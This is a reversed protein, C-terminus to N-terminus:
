FRIGGSLTLRDAAPNNDRDIEYSGSFYLRRSLWTDASITLWHSDSHDRWAKLRNRSMGYETNIDLIDFFSRSFSISGQRGEGYPSSFLATSIRAAIRTWHSDRYSIGGSASRGTAGEGEGIGGSLYARLDSTLRADWGLRWGSRAAGVWLSDPIAKDAADRVNRWRSFGGSLNMRDSIAYNASLLFGSVDFTSGAANKRWGRNIQIEASQNVTFRRTSSFDNSLYMYERDIEGRNYVGVLALSSVIRYENSTPSNWRILSGAKLKNTSVGSTVPDPEVGAFFSWRWNDRLGYSFTSGDLYGAGSAGSPQVRGLSWQYRSNVRDNALSFEYLRSNWQNKAGQSTRNLRRARLRINLQLSSRAINYVRGNLALSPQNWEAGGAERAIQAYYDFGLRGSWGMGREPRVRRIREVEPAVARATDSPTPIEVPVVAPAVIEIIVTDGAKVEDQKELVRCAASGSSTYTVELSAVVVGDRIVRCKDGRRVGDTAGAEMYVASASVYKVQSTLEAAEVRHFILESLVMTVILLRLFSSGSACARILRSFCRGKIGANIPHVYNFGAPQVATKRPFRIM